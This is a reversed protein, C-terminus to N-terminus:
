LIGLQKLKELNDEKTKEATKIYDDYAVGGIKRELFWQNISEYSDIAKKKTTELMSRMMPNSEANSVMRQFQQPFKKEREALHEDVKQKLIIVDRYFGFSMEEGLQYIDDLTTYRDFYDLVFPMLERQSKMLADLM